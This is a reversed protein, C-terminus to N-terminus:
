CKRLGPVQMGALREDMLIESKVRLFAFSRDRTSEDEQPAGCNDMECTCSLQSEIKAEIPLAKNLHIFNQTHLM